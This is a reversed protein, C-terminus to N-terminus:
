LGGVFKGLGSLIQGGAHWLNKTLVDAQATDKVIFYLVLAGIAWPM